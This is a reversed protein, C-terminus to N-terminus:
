SADVDALQVKVFNFAEVDSDPFTEAVDIGADRALPAFRGFAEEDFAYAAGADLGAHVDAFRIKALTLAADRLKPHTALCARLREQSGAVVCAEEFRFVEDRGAHAFFGLVRSDRERSRVTRAAAM